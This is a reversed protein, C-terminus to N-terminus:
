RRDSYWYEAIWHKQAHPRRAMTWLGRAILVFYHWDGYRDFKRVSALAKAGRTRGLRQRRRRGLRKLDFLFQVDEAFQREENYGGIAEFDDKRCFTVGTDLGTIWVLPLFFALTLALGLSLRELRVGSAGAVVRGGAMLADIANFTEPHIRADADVFALIEGAAARAGGNRVAGIVRTGVTVVRCGRRRAIDATRDTSVNDAVIVEVADPGGRFRARAADVTDLLRALYREENRAPIILSFRPVPTM